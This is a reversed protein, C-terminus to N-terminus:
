VKVLAFLANPDIRFLINVKWLVVWRRCEPIIIVQRHLCLLDTFHEQHHLYLTYRLRGQHHLCQM